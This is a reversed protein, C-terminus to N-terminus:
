QEDELQPLLLEEIAAVLNTAPFGQPLVLDAGADYAAQHHQSDEVFVICQTHTWERNIKSIAKRLNKGFLSADLLILYPRMENGMKMFVSPHNIEAIIEIEPLTRILSKVGDWLHDPRAVILALKTQKPM